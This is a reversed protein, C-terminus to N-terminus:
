QFFYEDIRHTFGICLMKIMALRSYRSRTRERENTIMVSKIGSSMNPMVTTGVM